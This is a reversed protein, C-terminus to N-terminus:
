NRQKKVYNSIMERWAKTMKNLIREELEQIEKNM